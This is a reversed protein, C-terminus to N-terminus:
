VFNFEEMDLVGHEPVQIVTAVIFFIRYLIDDSGWQKNIESKDM